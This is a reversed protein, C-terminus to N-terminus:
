PARAEQPAYDAQPPRLGIRGAARVNSFTREM